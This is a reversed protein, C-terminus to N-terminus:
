LAHLQAQTNSIPRLTIGTQIKIPDTGCAVQYRASIGALLLCAELMALHEGICTRAGASFPLYQSRTVELNQWRDPDFQLPQPFVQPNRHMVYPSILILSKPEIQEAGLVTSNITTRGFVYGAPYLRMTERIVNYTFPLTQRIENLTSLKGLDAHQTEQQLWLRIEPHQSLLIFCFALTTATTEHGALFLTVIQDRLHTQSILGEERSAAALDDLLSAQSESSQMGQQINSYILQDLRKVARRYAWNGGVPLWDATYIPFRLRPALSAMLDGMCEEMERMNVQLHVGFICRTIIRATIRSMEKNIDVSSRTEWEAMLTAIEELMIPIYSNTSKPQFAPASLKRLRKWQDGESTLLGHGFLRRLRRAFSRNRVYAQSKNTLVEHVLDADSILYVPTKAMRFRTFPRALGVDELFGLTDSVFPRLNGLILHQPPLQHAKLASPNIM